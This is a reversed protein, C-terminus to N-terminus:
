WFNDMFVEVALLLCLLLFNFSAINSYNKLTSWNTKIELTKLFPFGDWYPTQVKPSHNANYLWYSSSNWHNYNTPRILVSQFLFCLWTYTYACVCVVKKNSRSTTCQVPSQWCPLTMLYLNYINAWFQM